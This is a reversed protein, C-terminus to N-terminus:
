TDKVSIGFDIVFKTSSVDIDEFIVHKRSNEKGVCWPMDSSCERVTEVDNLADTNRILFNVVEAEVDQLSNAAVVNVFMQCLHTGTIMSNECEFSGLFAFKGSDLMLLADISRIGCRYGVHGVDISAALVSVVSHGAFHRAVMDNLCKYFPEQPVFRFNGWHM